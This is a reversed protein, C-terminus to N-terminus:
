SLKSTHSFSARHIYRERIIELLPPSTEIKVGAYRMESLQRDFPKRDHGLNGALQSALKLFAVRLCQFIFQIINAHIHISNLTRM